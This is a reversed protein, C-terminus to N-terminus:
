QHGICYWRYMDEETMTCEIGNWWNEFDREMWAGLQNIIRDEIQFSHVATDFNLNLYERMGICIFSYGMPNEVFYDRFERVGVTIM